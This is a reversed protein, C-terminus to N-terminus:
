GAPRATFRPTLGTGTLCPPPAFTGSLGGHDDFRGQWETETARTGGISGNAAILYGVTPLPGLEWNGTGGQAPPCTYTVAIDTVIRGGAIVRLRVSGSMGAPATVTGRWLGDAVSVRRTATLTFRLTRPWATRHCRFQTWSPVDLVGRRASSLSGLFPSVFPQSKTPPLFFEFQRPGLPPFPGHLVTGPALYEVPTLLGADWVQAGRARCSLPLGLALDTVAAQRGHRVLAFSLRLGFPGRGEWDGFAPHIPGAVTAARAAPAPVGVAALVAMLVILGRRNM